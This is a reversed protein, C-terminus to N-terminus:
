IHLFCIWMELFGEGSQRNWLRHFISFGNRWRRSRLVSFKLAGTLARENKEVSISNSATLGGKEQPLVIQARWVLSEDCNNQKPRFPLQFFVRKFTKFSGYLTVADSWLPITCIHRGFRTNWCTSVSAFSPFSDVNLLWLAMEKCPNIM